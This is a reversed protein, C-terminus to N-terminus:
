GTAIDWLRATEDQSGTLVRAGHPSFAASMVVDEHGTFGRIEKGTAADWLRATKDASGTLVRAGDPSFAVSNIRDNTTIRMREHPGSLIRSVANLTVERKPLDMAADRPWAALALEAATVPRQELETFALATLASSFNERAQITEQEAHNRQTEAEIRNFEALAALGAFITTLVILAAGWNRVRRRRAREARRVIEDLGLGLLGAVVKLKALDKGDHEPRADAAIPEERENTLTGDQGVKFGLAPPFCEREPDNPEGDSSSRSSAIAWVWRRLAAFKKM